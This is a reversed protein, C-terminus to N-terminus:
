VKRMTGFRIKYEMLALGQLIFFLDKHIKFVSVAELEGCMSEINELDEKGAVKFLTELEVRLEEIDKPIIKVM